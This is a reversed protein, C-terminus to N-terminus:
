AGSGDNVAIISGKMYSHYQGCFETCLIPFATDHEINQDITFTYSNNVGPVVDMKINLDEVYYSHIFGAINYFVFTYTEGINLKIDTVRNEDPSITENLQTGNPLIYRWAWGNTGIVVVETGTEAEEANNTESFLVPYSVFMLIVVIVVAIATWTFELKRATAHNIPTRDSDEKEERFEYIFYGWLGLVLILVLASVITLLVFLNNYNESLNSNASAPNIINFFISIIAILSFNVKKMIRWNCMIIYNYQCTFIVEIFSLM